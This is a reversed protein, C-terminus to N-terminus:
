RKAGNVVPIQFDSRTLETAKTKILGLEVENQQVILDTRRNLIESLQLASISGNRFLTMAVKMQENLLKDSSELLKLNERIALGTESAAFSEAMENQELAKIQKEHALAKLRAERYRGLDAPDFLSWQLYLGATYAENSNRNGSFLQSEAFAGVRPLYRAKEMQSMENAALASEARAKIENSKSANTVFYREVFQISNFSEPEWKEEEVGLTQLTKYGARQQARYQELLGNLRNSLSKLGLLGSYGVPNSKEGIQYSNLLVRIEDLISSLKHLKLKLVSVTAYAQGVQAYEEIEVQSSTYKQAQLQHAFFDVQHSKIGGEYLPLDVGLALRSFNSTEPRNLLSPDFDAASVKGQELLGFFVPGPDNTQYLRGDLYVKPWWHRAARRNAEEASQVQLQSAERMASKAKIQLWIHDFSITSDAAATNQIQSVVFVLVLIANVTKM